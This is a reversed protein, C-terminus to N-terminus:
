CQLLMQRGFLISETRSVCSVHSSLKLITGNNWELWNIPIHHGHSLFTSDCSAENHTWKTRSVRQENEPSEKDIRPHHFLAVISGDSRDEYTIAFTMFLWYLYRTTEETALRAHAHAIEKGCISNTIVINICDSKVVVYCQTIELLDNRFITM